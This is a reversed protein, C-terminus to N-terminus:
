IEIKSFNLYNEFSTCLMKLLELRNKKIIKDEDNVIVNDFFDDVERKLSSLTKLSETYNEDRINNTFYKRIHQIKKYLAQEYENKFLNKDALGTLDNINKQEDLM